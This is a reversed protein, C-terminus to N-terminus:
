HAMRPRSALQTMGNRILISSYACTDTRVPLRSSVSVGSVYNNTGWYHLDVAEWFPDDGPYFSRGDTNFEDSFVLKYDRGDFGTRTKVNEPTDADILDSRMTQPLLGIQGTGNTGGLGFAGKNNANPGTFYAIIPYGAFLCLIGAALLVLAGVNIIARSPSIRSAIIERKPDHLYDDPEVRGDDITDWGDPNTDIIHSYAAAAGGMSLDTESGKFDRSAAPRHRIGTPVATFDFGAAAASRPNM